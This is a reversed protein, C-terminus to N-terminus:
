TQVMTLQPDSISTDNLFSKITSGFVKTGGVHMVKKLMEAYETFNLSSKIDYSFIQYYDNDQLRKNASPAGGIDRFYGAAHGSTDCEMIVTGSREGDLSSFSAVENDLHGFGSAHVTLTAVSGSNIGVNATIVANDGSMHYDYDNTVATITASANSSLGNIATNDQIFDQNISLRQVGLHTLNATRVLGRANIYYLASNVTSVSSNISSTSGIVNSTNSWTGTSTRIILTNGSIAQLSGTATNATSNAQYLVEGFIFAPPTSGLILQIYDNQFVSQSVVEGLRFAGSIGTIDLQYDFKQLAAIEPQLVDIIPVATYETGPNQHDIGTIIGVNLQRFTLYELFNSNLNGAPNMLFGLGNAAVNSNSGNIILNFFPIGGSNNGTLLDTNVVVAETNNVGTLEFTALSGSSVRTVHGSTNSFQGVFSNNPTTIFAGVEGIVGVSLRLNSVTGSGNESILLTGPDIFGHDRAIKLTSNAGNIIVSSVTGNAIVVGTNGYNYVTEGRLFTNGTVDITISPGIGNVLGTATDNTYTSIVATVSNGSKAITSDSAINGSLPIFVVVGNAGTISSEIVSGQSSVLGNSYYNEIIDGNEFVGGTIGVLTLTIQSQIVKEYQLFETALTADNINVNAVSLVHQSINVNASQTYGFGGNSFTFDVIGTVDAITKVIAQGYAGNNSNLDVIEGVTFNEGGNVVTLDSLSGHVYPADTLDTMSTKLYEGAQFRGRLTTIFFINTYKGHISRRILKDVFATAGSTAGTIEKGIFDRLHTNNSVELYLPVIWQGDSSRFIDQEPYYIEINEGFMLQFFLKLGQESGKSRYLDLVHKILLRKNTKTSFKVGQLYTQKFHGIFAEPTRDIDSYNRLNRQHYIFNGETEAWEFYARVFAIFNQGEDRYFEPFQSPILSSIFNIQTNTDM